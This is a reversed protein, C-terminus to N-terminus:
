KCTEGQEVEQIERNMDLIVNELHVLKGEKICNKCV